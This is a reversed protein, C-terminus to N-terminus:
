HLTILKKEKLTTLFQDIDNTLQNESVNYQALIHDYAETLSKKESIFRWVTAAVGNIKFFNDSEDIKMVVVTGDQNGRSVLEPDLTIQTNEYAM